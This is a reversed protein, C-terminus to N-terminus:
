AGLTELVLKNWASLLGYLRLKRARRRLDDLDHMKAMTAETTTM